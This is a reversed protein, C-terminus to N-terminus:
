HWFMGSVYIYAYIYINYIYINYIYIYKDSCIKRQHLLEQPDKNWFLMKGSSCSLTIVHEAKRPECKGVLVWSRLKKPHGHIAWRPVSRYWM